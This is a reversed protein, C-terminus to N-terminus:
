HKTVMPTMESCRQRLLFDTLLALGPRFLFCQWKAGGRWARGRGGRPAARSLLRSDLSGLDNHQFWVPILTHSTAAVEGILESVNIEYGWFIMFVVWTKYRPIFDCTQQRRVCIKPKDCWLHSQIEASVNAHGSRICALFFVHKSPSNRLFFSIWVAFSCGWIEFPFSPSKYPKWNCKPM